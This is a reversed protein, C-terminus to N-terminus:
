SSIARSALSHVLKASAMVLSRRCCGSPVHSGLFRHMLSTTVRRGGAVRGDSQGNRHLQAAVNRLADLASLGEVVREPLEPVGRRKRLRVECGATGSTAAVHHSRTPAFSTLLM